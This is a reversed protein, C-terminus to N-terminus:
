LIRRRPKNRVPVQLIIRAPKHGDLGNSRKGAQRLRCGSARPRVISSTSAPGHGALNKCLSKPTRLANGRCFAPMRRKAGQFHLLALGDLSRRPFLEPFLPAIIADIQRTPYGVSNAYGNQSHEALHLPRSQGVWGWDDSRCTTAPRQVLWRCGGGRTACCKETGVQDIASACDYRRRKGCGDVFKCLSGLLIGNVGWLV